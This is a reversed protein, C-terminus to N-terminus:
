GTMLVWDPAGENFASPDHRAVARIVEANAPPEAARIEGISLYSGAVPVDAPDAELWVTTKPVFQEGNNGNALNGGARYSCPYVVPSGFTPQGYEDITVSWVTCKATYSWSSFTGM